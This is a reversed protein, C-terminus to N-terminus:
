NLHVAPQHKGVRNAIAGVRMRNALM